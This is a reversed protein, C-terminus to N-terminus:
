TADARSVAEATTLGLQAAFDPLRGCFQTLWRIRSPGAAPAFSAIPSANRRNRRKKPTKMSKM